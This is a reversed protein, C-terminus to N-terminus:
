HTLLKLAVTALGFLAAVAASVAREWRSLQGSRGMEWGALGLLATACGLSWLIATRLEMGTARLLLLCALPLYSATVLEWGETVQRRIHSWSPRRDSHLREAVVRAYREASWYIVLTGVVVVSTQWATASHSATLVAASLILGYIAAATGEETARRLRLRTSLEM